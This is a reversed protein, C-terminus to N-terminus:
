NLTQGVQPQGSTYILLCLSMILGLAEVKHLSKLFISDTLELPTFFSFDKEVSQKGKYKFLMEETTLEM